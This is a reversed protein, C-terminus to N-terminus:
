RKERGGPRGLRVPPGGPAALDFTRHHPRKPPGTTYRCYPQGDLAGGSTGQCYPQSIALNRGSNQGWSPNGPEQRSEPAHAAHWLCWRAWRVRPCGGGPRPRPAPIKSYSANPSNKGRGMHFYPTTEYPAPFCGGWRRLPPEDDLFVLASRLGQPPAGAGWSRTPPRACTRAPARRVGVPAAQAGAPQGPRGLGSGLVARGGLAGEARGLGGPDGWPGWSTRSSNGYFAM